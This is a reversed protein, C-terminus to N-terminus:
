LLNSSSSCSVVPLLLQSFLSFSCSLISLHFSFPSRLTTSNITLIHRDTDHWRSVGCDLSLDELLTVLMVIMQQSSCQFPQGFEPGEMELLQTLCWGVRGVQRVYFPPCVVSNVFPFALYFDTCLLCLSPLHHLATETGTAILLHSVPRHCSM